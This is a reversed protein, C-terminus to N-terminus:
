WNRDNAECLGSCQKELQEVAAISIEVGKPFHVSQYTKSILIRRQNRVEKQRKKESQDWADVVVQLREIEKMAKAIAAPPNEDRVEMRTITVIRDILYKKQDATLISEKM